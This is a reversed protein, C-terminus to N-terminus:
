AAAGADRRLWLGGVRERGVRRVVTLGVSEFFKELESIHHGPVDHYELVLSQVTDWSEPSSGLVIDFEAGETDMKVLDVRGGARRVAEDFTICPVATIVSDEPATIGNLGSGRGNDAFELTGDHDSLACHTVTVREDLRNATVNRRTWEATVPSAEYTNVRIGPAKRALAVSFCGIHGGIDLAVADPRLGSTLEDLHYVDEVFLEYVPVRAGPHNPATIRGGGPLDFLLTDRRWPTRSSALDFLVRTPNDFQLTQRLRRARIQVARKM